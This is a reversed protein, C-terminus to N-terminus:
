ISLNIGPCLDEVLPQMVVLPLHIFLFISLYRAMSGRGSTADSSTSPGSQDSACSATRSVSPSTRISGTESSSTTQNSGLINVIKLYKIISTCIGIVM